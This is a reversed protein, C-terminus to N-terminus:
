PNQLFVGTKGPTKSSFRSKALLKPVFFGQNHWHKKSSFMSKELPNQLFVESSFRSKAQPKQLFVRIKGPNESSFRPRALLRQLFVKSSFWLKVLPKQFLVKSFFGSKVMLIQLFVRIEDSIKPLFVACIEDWSSPSPSADLSGGLATDSAVAPCLLQRGPQCPHLQEWCSGKPQLDGTASSQTQRPAHGPGPLLERQM